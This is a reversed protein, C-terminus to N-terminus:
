HFRYSHKFHPDNQIRPQMLIPSLLLLFSTFCKKPDGIDPTYEAYSPNYKMRSIIYDKNLKGGKRFYHLTYNITFNNPLYKKQGMIVKLFFSTDFGVDRPHYWNKEFYFNLRDKLSKYKSVILTANVPAKDNPNNMNYDEM